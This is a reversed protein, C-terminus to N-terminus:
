EEGSPNSPLFRAVQAEIQAAFGLSGSRAMIDAFQSDQMERFTDLAESGLLEDGFDVKRASALVQRVLIAEFQQCAARLKVRENSADASPSATISTITNM